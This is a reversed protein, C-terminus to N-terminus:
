EFRESFASTVRQADIIKTRGCKPNHCKFRLRGVTGVSGRLTMRGHQRQKRGTAKTRRIEFCTCVIPESM